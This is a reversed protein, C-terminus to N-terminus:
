NLGPENYIQLPIKYELILDIIELVDYQSLPGSSLHLWIKKLNTRAPIINMLKKEVLMESEKSAHNIKNNIGSNPNRIFGKETETALVTNDQASINQANGFSMGYNRNCLATNGRLVINDLLNRNGYNMVEIGGQNGILLNDLVTSPGGGVVIGADNRSGIVINNRVINANAKDSKEAGYVM